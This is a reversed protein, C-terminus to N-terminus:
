VYMDMELESYIKDTLELLFEKVGINGHLEKLLKLNRKDLKISVSYNDIYTHQDYDEEIMLYKIIEDTM